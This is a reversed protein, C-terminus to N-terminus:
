GPRRSKELLDLLARAKLPVKVSSDVDQLAELVPKVENALNKHSLDYLVLHAGERFWGLQSKDILARMLVVLGERGRPVLGEAALWRVDFARNAPADVLAETAPSGPIEGLAKAAEWQVLAKRSKLADVLYPVAPDGMDVLAQRARRCKYVDKCTLDSILPAIGLADVQHRAPNRSNGAASQSRIM